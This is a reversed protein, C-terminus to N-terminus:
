QRKADDIQIDYAKQITQGCIKFGSIVFVVNNAHEDM